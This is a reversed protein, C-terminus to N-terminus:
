CVGFKIDRLASFVAISVNCINHDINEIVIPAGRWLRRRHWLLQCPRLSQLPARARAGGLLQSFDMCKDSKVVKQRGWYKPKAWGINKVLRRWFFNPVLYIM